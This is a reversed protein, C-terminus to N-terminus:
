PMMAWYPKLLRMSAVSPEPTMRKRIPRKLIPPKMLNMGTDITIPKVFPMATMIPRCCTLSKRPRVTALIGASKKPWTLVIMLLMPVILGHAKPRASALKRM